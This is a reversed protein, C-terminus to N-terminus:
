GRLRFSEMPPMAERIMFSEPVDGQLVDADKDVSGHDEASTGTVKVVEGGGAKKVPLSIATYAMGLIIVLFIIGIIISM